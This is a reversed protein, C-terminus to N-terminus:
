PSNWKFTYKVNVYLGGDLLFQFLPPTPPDSIKEGPGGGRMCKFPIARLLIQVKKGVGIIYVKYVAWITICEGKIFCNM